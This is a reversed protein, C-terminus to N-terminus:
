DRCLKDGKGVSELLPLLLTCSSVQFCYQHRGFPGAEAVIGIRELEFQGKLQLQFLWSLYQVCVSSHLNLNVKRKKYYELYTSTLRCVRDQFKLSKLSKHHLGRQRKRLPGEKFLLDQHEGEAM